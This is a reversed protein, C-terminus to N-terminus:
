DHHGWFHGDPWLQGVWMIKGDTTLGTAVCHAATLIWRSNILSGGCKPVFIKEKKKGKQELEIIEILMAMWPYENIETDQGGIVRTSKKEKKM